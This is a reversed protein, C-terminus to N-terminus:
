KEREILYANMQNWLETRTQDVKPEKLPFLGGRGDYAYTRWILAEIVDEVHDAKRGTLPDSSKTLRLNKLFRWVWIGPDKERMSNFATRRSLAILVELLTVPFPFTRKRSGNASWFEARLDEGDQLRNDDNAIIWVYETDHLRQFLEDYRNENNAPIKIQSTLWVFYDQETATMRVVAKMEM